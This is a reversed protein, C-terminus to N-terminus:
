LDAAIFLACCLGGEVDDSSECEREVGVGVLEDEIRVLVAGFVAFPVESEFGDGVEVGVFLGGDSGDATRRHGAKDPDSGTCRCSCLM